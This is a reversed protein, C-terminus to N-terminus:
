ITSKPGQEGRVVDDLTRGDPAMWEIWGNASRGMLAGAATSPSRFPHDKMFRVREGEVALVGQAILDERSEELAKGKMSPVVARRGSSGKLVVFGEPTYLGRGDADSGTCSYVLSSTASSPVERAVGLAQSRAAQGVADFLPLGLTALLSHATEFIERCDAELPPPTYPRCGGTSNEITYRAAEIARQICHWELYLAHTQTMSDTRSVIVFAREWFDRSKHHDLLRQRLDGTQGIYARLEREDESAGALVYVAVKRCEPLALFDELLSRPVELVQVIRTTIEAIRLGRPDGGPLFIQITKPNSTV